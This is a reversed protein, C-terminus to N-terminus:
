LEAPKETKSRKELDAKQKSLWQTLAAASRQIGEASDLLDKLDDLSTFGGLKRDMLMGMRHVVDDLLRSGQRAFQSPMPYVGSGRKLDLPDRREALAAMDVPLQAIMQQKREEHTPERYEPELPVGALMQQKRIADLIM